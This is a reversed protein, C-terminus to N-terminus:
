LAFTRESIPSTHALVDQSRLIMMLLVGIVIGMLLGKVDGLRQELKVKAHSLFVSEGKQRQITKMGPLGDLSHSNYEHVFERLKDKKVMYDYWQGGVQRDKFHNETSGDAQPELLPVSFGCSSSVKWVKLYIVARVGPVSERSQGMSALIEDFRPDEMEVVSGTCYLRM